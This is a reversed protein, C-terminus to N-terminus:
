NEEKILKLMAEAAETEDVMNGGCRVYSGHRVSKDLNLRVDDYFMPPLAMEVCLVAKCRLAAIQKEPFPHLTIARFLGAKYGKERLIRVTDKCIRAASGYAVIAYEADEMMYEEYKVETDVWGRYMNYNNWRQAELADEATKFKVGDPAWQWKCGIPARGKCGNPVPYKVKLAEKRYEPLIVPEEMQGIMADSMIFVPTEYEVAKEFALYTLDAAEQLNGPAYVLGRQGNHGLSKVIYNYDSQEGSITDGARQVDCFVAPLRNRAISNFTEAMLSLGPGSTASMAIGGGMGAAQIMAAAAIESEAQIITRGEEPMRRSMYELLETQPTIPYGCFLQVGSRIASEAIIENGNMLVKEGM